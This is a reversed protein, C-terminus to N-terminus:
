RCGPGAPRRRRGRPGGAGGARAGGRLRLVRSRAYADLITPSWGGDDDFRVPGRNDLALARETGEARYRVMEAEDPGYDVAPAEMLPLNVM